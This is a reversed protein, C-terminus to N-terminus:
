CVYNTKTYPRCHLHSTTISSFSYNIVWCDNFIVLLVIRGQIKIQVVASRMTRLWSGRRSLELVNAQWILPVGSPLLLFSGIWINLKRHHQTVCEQFLLCAFKVEGNVKMNMYPLTKASNNIFYCKITMIDYHHYGPPAVAFIEFTKIALFAVIRTM